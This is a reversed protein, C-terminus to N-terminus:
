PQDHLQSYILEFKNGELLRYSCTLLDNFSWDEMKPPKFVSDVAIKVANEIM